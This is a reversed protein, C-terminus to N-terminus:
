AAAPPAMCARLSALVAERDYKGVHDTFGEARGREVDAPQVRGTLAVMPLDRWPGGARVARAFGFGDMEPMEIDSVIADFMAGAERLKLAQPPAEVATVEYGAASLAPVVLHRFFASDEVVLVRKPAAAATAADRFWDEGAQRLWWGCDVVDTVRGAVVASGLFGPREPGRQVALRDEVVDLIEDVMLGMARERETFVLVAQRGGAAAEPDWHGSLPVLPM